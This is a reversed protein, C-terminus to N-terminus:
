QGINQKRNIYNEISVEIGNVMATETVRTKRPYFCERCVPLNKFGDKEAQMKRIRNMAESHWLDHIRETTADGICVTGYEDATCLVAKGSSLVPIRQYPMPCYFDPEYVIDTDRGLYDIIPNFAVLDTVPALLDYYQQPNGRIAPWITQVKIVPKVLSNATKYEHIDQLEKLTQDFKLPTRIRNYVDGVGDVSVTIWDAGAQQIEKFFDLELRSGNTLFSVEGIGAAKAYQIAQIFDPHLTPEGRYSLRLAYVKGRVEDVIRQVLHIDMFGRNVEKEFRRTTTYCMPCNLNCVSSLELDVQLPYDRVIQKEPNEQWARRYEAYEGQDWGVAMKRSFAQIREPTDLEFHGKNVPAKM